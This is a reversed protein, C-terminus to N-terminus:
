SHFRTILAALASVILLNRESSRKKMLVINIRLNGVPIWLRKNLYSQEPQFLSMNLPILIQSERKQTGNSVPYIKGWVILTDTPKGTRNESINWVCWYWLAIDTNPQWMPSQWQELVQGIDTHTILLQKWFQFSGIAIRNPFIYNIVGKPLCNLPKYKFGLLIYPRGKFIRLINPLLDILFSGARCLIFEIFAWEYVNSPM